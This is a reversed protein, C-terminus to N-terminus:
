QILFLFNEDATAPNYITAVSAVSDWTIGSNYDGASGIPTCGTGGRSAYVLNRGVYGPISFVTQGETAVQNIVALATGAIIVTGSPTVTTGSINPAGSGKM